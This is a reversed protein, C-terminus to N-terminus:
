VAPAAVLAGADGVNGLVVPYVVGPCNVMLALDILQEDLPESRRLRIDAASGAVERTQLAATLARVPITRPSRPVPLCAKMNPWTNDPAAM